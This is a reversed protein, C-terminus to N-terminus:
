RETDDSKDDRKVVQLVRRATPVDLGASTQVEEDDDTPRGEPKGYGYAALLESCKVWGDGQVKVTEIWQKIVFEDVADRCRARLEALTKPRGGPNGSQGKKFQNAPSPNPNAM